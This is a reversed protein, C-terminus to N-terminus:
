TETHGSEAKKPKPEQKMEMAVQEDIHRLPSKMGERLGVDGLTSGYAMSPKAYGFLKKLDALVWKGDASGFLRKYRRLRDLKKAKSEAAAKEQAKSEFDFPERSM